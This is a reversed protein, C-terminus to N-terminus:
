EEDEDEDQDEDPALEDELEDDPPQDVPNPEGDGGTAADMLRVTLPEANLVPVSQFSLLLGVTEGLPETRDGRPLDGIKIRDALIEVKGGVTELAGLMAMLVDVARERDFTWGNAGGAVPEVIITRATTNSMGNGGDYSM